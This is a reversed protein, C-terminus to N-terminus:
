MSHGIDRRPTGFSPCTALRTPTPSKPRRSCWIPSTCASTEIQRQVEAPDEDELEFIQVLWDQTAVWGYALAVMAPSHRNQPDM